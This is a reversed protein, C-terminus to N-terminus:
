TKRLLEMISNFREGYINLALATLGSVALRQMYQSCLCPGYRQFFIDTYAAKCDTIPPYNLEKGGLYM